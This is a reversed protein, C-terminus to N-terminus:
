DWWSNSFEETLGWEGMPFNKFGLKLAPSDEKVRYDNNDSDVFLPDAFVSNRDYGLERWEELSLQRNEGERPRVRAAFEERDSYFCNNDIEELWKGNGPPFILTYIEGNSKGMAFNLDDEPKAHESSMVTINKFYRDHNDENGVHFCPSNAGNVWINNYITRHCGERLKMSVGVCLNNYIEYNSAGDDLDLGWGAHEEFFNNRVVVPEMADVMMTNAEHSHANTKEGHGQLLCWARDRGWANFPGHDGTELCTDHIHNFEIVHGGWTGDGICIGARPMTHIHNHSVTIRKARSLYIGAVQKGFVGCRSILNNKVTCEYSFARQSGMTKELSGVFCVASDGCYSFTSGAISNNRNYNNLFVANGGVADFWCNEINCNRTGELTVAGGRHIAWDGLSPIEYEDMFTSATHAIRFGCFKINRVPEKQSGEIDILKKLIPVEILATSLDVEPEPILYLIGSDRDLYWESPADLEEFVNEIFYRSRHNVVCPNDYWKAGMQHGGEGFWLLQNDSDLHKIRWQLNGWYHGQYIHIIAEEPKAWKKDPLTGEKIVIGRPPGSSFTMDSDEDPSPDAIEDGIANEAPIYGTYNEPDSDDFNPYRALVQRKGNVFLQSFDLKGDVVEPLKCMMIGDKYPEWKCDLKRGGSLTVKEGEAARFEIASDESGLILTEDFYYTGSHVKVEVSSNLPKHLNRIADRAAHLSAFPAESSGSNNDSGESSVYLVISEKKM